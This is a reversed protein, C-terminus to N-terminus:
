NQGLDNFIIKYKNNLCLLIFLFLRRDSLEYWLHQGGIFRSHRSLYNLIITHKIMIFLNVYSNTKGFVYLSQRLAVYVLTTHAFSISLFRLIQKFFPKLGKKVLFRKRFEAHYFKFLFIYNSRM